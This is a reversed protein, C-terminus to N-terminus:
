SSIVPVIYIYIRKLIEMTCLLWLHIHDTRESTVMVVHYYSVVFFSLM